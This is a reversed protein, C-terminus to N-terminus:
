RRKLLKQFEAKAKKANAQLPATDLTPFRQRAEIVSVAQAGANVGATILEQVSAPLEVFESEDLISHRASM